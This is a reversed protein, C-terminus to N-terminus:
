SNAIQWGGEELESPGILCKDNDVVIKFRGYIDNREVELMFSGLYSSPIAVIEGAKVKEYIELVTAM